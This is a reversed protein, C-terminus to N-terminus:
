DAGRPWWDPLDSSRPKCTGFTRLYHVALGVMTASTLRSSISAYNSQPLHLGSKSESWVRFAESTIVQNFDPLLEEGIGFAKMADLIKASERANWSQARAWEFFIEPIITNPM